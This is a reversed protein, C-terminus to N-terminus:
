RMGVGSNYVRVLKHRGDETHIYSTKNSRTIAIVKYSMHSTTFWINTYQKSSSIVSMISSFLHHYLVCISAFHLASFRM